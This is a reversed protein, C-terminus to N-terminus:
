RWAMFTHLPTSTYRWANNVEVSPRAMNWATLLLSGVATAGTWAWTLDHPIQPSCLPVPAPKKRTSRNGRDFRMGGVAGCEDDDTMRPRYLLGILPRRVLHAWDWGVELFLFFLEVSFSLSHNTERGPRKLRLFHPEQVVLDSAPHAESKIYTSRLFIDIGAPFRVWIGSDNLSTVISVSSDRRRQNHLKETWGCSYPCGYM